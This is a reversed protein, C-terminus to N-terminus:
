RARLSCVENITKTIHYRKPFVRRQPGNSVGNTAESAQLSRSKQADFASPTEPGCGGGKGLRRERHYWLESDKQEAKDTVM